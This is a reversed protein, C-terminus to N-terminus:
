FLAPPPLTLRAAAPPAACKLAARRQRRRGAAGAHVTNPELARARPANITTAIACLEHVASLVNPAAQGELERATQLGERERATPATLAVTPSPRRARSRASPAQTSHITSKIKSPLRPNTLAHTRTHRTHRSPSPKHLPLLSAHAGGLRQRKRCTAACRGGSCRGAGRLRHAGGFVCARSSLVVAGWGGM